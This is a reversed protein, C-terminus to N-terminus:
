QGGGVAKGFTDFWLHAPRLAVYESLTRDGNQIYAPDYTIGAAVFDHVLHFVQSQAGPRAVAGCGDLFATPPWPLDEVVHVTVVNRFQGKNGWGLADFQDVADPASVDIQAMRDIVRQPIGNALTLSDHVLQSTDTGWVPHSASEQLIVEVMWWDGVILTDAAPNLNAQSVLGQVRDRWYKLDPAVQYAYRDGDLPTLGEVGHGPATPYGGKVGYADEWVQQDTDWNAM